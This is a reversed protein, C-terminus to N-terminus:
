IIIKITRLGGVKKINLYMNYVLNEISCSIDMESVNLQSAFWRDSFCCKKDQNCSAKLIAFLKIDLLDLNQDFLVEAPIKFVKEQSKEKCATCEM